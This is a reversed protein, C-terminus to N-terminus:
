NSPAIILQIGDIPNGNLSSLTEAADHAVQDILRQACSMILFDDPSHRLSDGM